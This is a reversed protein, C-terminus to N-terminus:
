HYNAFEQENIASTTADGGLVPNLTLKYITYRTYSGRRKIQRTTIFNLSRDFQTFSANRTFTRKKADWDEGSVFLMQYVGDPVHKLTFASNSKVYFAAVLKSNPGVLKLYADSSTGNAVQLSGRGRRTPFTLTKSSPLARNKLIASPQKAVTQPASTIPPLFPSSLLDPFTEFPSAVPALSPSPSQSGESFIRVFSSFMLLGMGALISMALLRAVKIISQTQSTSSGFPNGLREQCSSCRYVGQDSQKSLLNIQHCKSCTVNMAILLETKIAKRFM